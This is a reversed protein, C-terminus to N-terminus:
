CSLSEVTVCMKSVRRRWGDKGATVCAHSRVVGVNANAPQDSTHVLPKQSHANSLFADDRHRWRQTISLISITLTVATITVQKDSM